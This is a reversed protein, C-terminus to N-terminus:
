QAPEGDDDHVAVGATVPRPERPQGATEHAAAIIADPDQAVQLGREVAAAWAGPAPERERAAAIIAAVDEVVTGLSHRGGCPHGYLHEAIADLRAHALRSGTRGILLASLLDEHAARDHGVIKTSLEARERVLREVDAALDGTCTEGLAREIRELVADRSSLTELLEDRTHGSARWMRALWEAAMCATAGWAMALDRQSRAEDRADRAEDRQWEARQREAVVERYRQAFADRDAELATIHERIARASAVNLPRGEDAAADLARLAALTKASM